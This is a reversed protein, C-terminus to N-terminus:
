KKRSKFGWFLFFIAAAALPVGLYTLMNWSEQVEFDSLDAFMRELLYLLFLLFLGTFLPHYWFFKFNRRKLMQYVWVFLLAIGFGVLAWTVHTSM